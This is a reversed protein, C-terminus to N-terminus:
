EAEIKADKVVKSWRPTESQILSAFQEPTGGGIENGQSVIKDKVEPLLLAQNCAQNLRAVIEPPLGKPGILGQWNLVEIQPYGLEAMTAVQPLLPSRTTSTIALPTLRGSQIGPLAAYMLEFMMDVQGGLLNSTAAAGSKFPAHIMDIGAAHEFLSGSLHHTGGLGGSAYSLRNPAAKAAKIIDAVSKFPSDSRVMLVLPGREILCIPTLETLPNFNLKTFLSPNVAMPAINGMGITYGDAKARAIAQTGINGGAGAKNEIVVPKGLIESMAKAVLRSRTDANGGAGYPCIWTIAKNPYNHHAFSLAPLLSLSASAQLLTRRKM